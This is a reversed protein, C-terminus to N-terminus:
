DYMSVFQCSERSWWKVLCEDEEIWVGVERSEGVRYDWQLQFLMLNWGKGNPEQIGCSQLYISTSASSSENWVTLDQDEKTGVGIIGFFMGGSEFGVEGYSGWMGVAVQVMMLNM